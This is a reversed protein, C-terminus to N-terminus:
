LNDIYVMSGHTIGTEEFTSDNSVCESKPELEELTLIDHYWQPLCPVARKPFTQHMQFFIPCMESKMAENFLKEIKDDANFKIVKKGTPFRILLDHAGEAPEKDEMCKKKYAEVTSLREEAERQKKEEEEQAKKAAAEESKLKAIREMDQQLSAQYERNQEEMLRRSENQARNRADRDAEDAILDIMALDINAAVSEPNSLNEVILKRTLSTGRILFVLICSRKQKGFSRDPRLIAADDSGLLCGFLVGERSRIQEAFTSTFLSHFFDLNGNPDHVYTVLFKWNRVPLDNRLSQLQHKYFVAKKKSNYQPFDAAIYEFIHKYTPAPPGFFYKYMFNLVILPLRVPLTIFQTFFQLLSHYVPLVPGATAPPAEEQANPLSVRSSSATSETPSSDSVLATPVTGEFFHRVAIEVDYNTRTLYNVAVDRECNTIEMMQAIFAQQNEDMKFPILPSIFAGYRTCLTTLLRPGSLYRASPMESHRQSCLLQLFFM